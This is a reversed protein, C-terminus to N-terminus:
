VSVKSLEVVPFGVHGAAASFGIRMSHPIKAAETRSEEHSSTYFRNVLSSSCAPGLRRNRNAKGTVNPYYTVTVFSRYRAL